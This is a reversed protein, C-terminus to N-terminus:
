GWARLTLDRLAGYGRRSSWRRLGHEITEKADLERTANGMRIFYHAKGGDQIYAPGPAPEVVLRCIDKGHIEHFVLHVHACMEGGIRSDILTMIFQEFGDRNKRSLTAYDSWLGLINGTDSVGIFLSGGRHNLFGAVTIAVAKELSKNVRREHLDWRASTKFEVTEGEGGEILAVVNRHLENELRDAVRKRLILARYYLGSGLGMTAGIVAFTGSM